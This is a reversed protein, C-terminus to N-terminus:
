GLLVVGRGTPNEEILKSYSILKGGNEIIKNAASDSISFSYLTIKHSINGTGLVKGPFVVTDNDKTLQTIRNLNIDRRAISPKLAYEALKRWIPAHNKTSAKKLDSAMRIVVQNTM